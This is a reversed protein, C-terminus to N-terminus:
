VWSAWLKCDRERRKKKYDGGVSEAHQVKLCSGERNMVVAAKKTMDRIAFGLDHSHYVKGQPIVVPPGDGV